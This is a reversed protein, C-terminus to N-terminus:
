SAYCPHVQQGFLESSPRPFELHACLRSETVIGSIVTKKESHGNKSNNGQSEKETSEPSNNLENHLQSPPAHVM